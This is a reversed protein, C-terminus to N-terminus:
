RVVGHKKLKSFFTSRPMALLRAAVSKNGGAENLADVLRQREYALFESNWEEGGEDPALDSGRPRNRTPTRVSSSTSGGATSLGGTANDRDVSGALVAVPPRFRRRGRVRVDPPLDDITLAPGDALIVAREM